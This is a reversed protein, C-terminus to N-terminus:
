RKDMKFEQIRRGYQDNIEVYLDTNGIEALDIMYNRIIQKGSVFEDYLITGFKDKWVIQFENKLQNDFELRYVPCQNIQGAVYM